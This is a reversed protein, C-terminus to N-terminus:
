LAGGAEEDLAEPWYRWGDDGRIGGAAHDCAVPDVEALIERLTAALVAYSEDTVKHEADVARTRRLLWLTFALTSVDANVPRLGADEVHRGLVLGTAGDVVLDIDEVLYGLCILRDAREPLLDKGQHAYVEALTRAPRDEDLTFMGGDVPLGVDRLFRRTPEHTLATPLDADAFRAVEGVGSDAESRAGPGAGSEAGFEADLLGEPLQLRLGDGPGAICALPRIRTAITWYDCDEDAVERLAETLRTVAEPGYQGAFRGGFEGAGSALEEVAGAMRLLTDLDTALPRAELFRSEIDALAVRGTRGDLVIEELEEGDADILHGIVLMEGVGDPLKVAHEYQEAVTTMRGEAVPGFGLLATQRPLGEGSLRARTPGHVVLPHLEEQVVRVVQM